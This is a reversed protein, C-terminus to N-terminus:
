CNAEHEDSLKGLTRWCLRQYPVGLWDAVAHSGDLVWLDGVISRDESSLNAWVAYSERVSEAMKAAYHIRSM